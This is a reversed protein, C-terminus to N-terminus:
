ETEYDVNWKWVMFRIQIFYAKKDLRLHLCLIKCIHPRFTLFGYLEKLFTVSGCHVHDSYIHTGKHQLTM